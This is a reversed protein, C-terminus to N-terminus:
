STVQELGRTRGPRPLGLPFQEPEARPRSPVFSRTQIPNPRDRCEWCGRWPGSSFCVTSASQRPAERIRRDVCLSVQHKQSLQDPSCVLIARPGTPWRPMAESLPLRVGFPGSCLPWRNAAAFGPSGGTGCVSGVRIAGVRAYEHTESCGPTVWQSSAHRM